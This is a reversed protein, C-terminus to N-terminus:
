NGKNFFNIQFHVVSRFFNRNKFEIGNQIPLRM